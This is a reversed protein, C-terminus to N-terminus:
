IRPKLSRSSPNSKSREIGLQPLSVKNKRTQNDTSAIERWVELSTLWFIPHNPYTLKVKTLKTKLNTM